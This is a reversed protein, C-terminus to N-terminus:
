QFIKSPFSSGQHARGGEAAGGLRQPWVVGGYYDIPAGNGGNGPPSENLFTANDVADAQLITTQNQWVQACIAGPQVM